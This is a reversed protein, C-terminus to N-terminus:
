EKRKIKKQMMVFLFIGLVTVGAAVKMLRTAFLAYTKGIPDYHYCFLLFQDVVNGIKGQAAELLALKLDKPNFQIGYLYRSIKGSPSIVTVVAAHAFEDQKEDYRFGFGVSNALKQIDEKKGTLFKWGKKHILRGYEKLYNEKKDLALDPTERADISVTLIQFQDGATWSMQKLTDMLGNLLFGCLNPCGYYVLTLLTPKGSALLEKLQLSAGNEDVFFLELPLDEGLKETIGIGQLEPPIVETAFVAKDLNAVLNGFFLFLFLFKVIVKSIM